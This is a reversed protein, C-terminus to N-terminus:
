PRCIVVPRGLYAAFRELMQARNEARRSIPDLLNKELVNDYVDWTTAVKTKRRLRNYSSNTNVIVVYRGDESEYRKAWGYGTRNYVFRPSKGRGDRLPLLVVANEPTPRASHRRKGGARSKRVVAMLPDTKRPLSM